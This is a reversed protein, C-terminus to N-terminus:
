NSSSPMPRPSRKKPKSKRVKKLHYGWENLRSALTRRTPLQEDTYGKEKILQQRVENASLRTYLRTSKFTPDTQSQGEVIAQVDARLNPLHAESRKRGRDHFADIQDLGSTLEGQGKRITTRGWGLARAAKRESGIKQAVEAMYKRRSSGKLKQATGIFHAKWEDTLEM